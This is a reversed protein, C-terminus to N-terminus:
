AFRVGNAFVGNLKQFKLPYRYVSVGQLSGRKSRLTIKDGDRLSFGQPAKCMFSKGEETCGFSIKNKDRQVDAQVSSDKTIPNKLNVDLLFVEFSNGSAILRLETHYAGPMQIDGGNPGSRDRGHGLSSGLLVLQSVALLPFGRRLSNLLFPEIWKM